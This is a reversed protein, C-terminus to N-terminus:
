NQEQRENGSKCDKDKPLTYALSAKPTRQEICSKNASKPLNLTRGDIALLDVECNMRKLRFAVICSNANLDVNPLDSAERDVRCLQTSRCGEFKGLKQANGSLRLVGGIQSM